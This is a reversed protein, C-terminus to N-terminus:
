FQEQLRPLVLLLARLESELQEQLLVLSNSWNKLFSVFICSRFTQKNKTKNQKNQKTKVGEKPWRPQHDNGIPVLRSTCSLLWPLITDIVIQAGQTAQPSVEADALAIDCAGRGKLMEMM